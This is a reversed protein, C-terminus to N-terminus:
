GLARCQSGNKKRSSELTVLQFSLTTSTMGTVGKEAIGTSSLLTMGTGRCQSGSKKKSSELTM